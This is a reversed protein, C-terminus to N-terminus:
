AGLQAIIAKLEDAITTRSVNTGITITEGVAISATVKYLQSNWVILDGVAHTATAPSEEIQAISGTLRDINTEFEAIEAQM